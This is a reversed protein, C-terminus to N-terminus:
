REGKRRTDKRPEISTETIEQEERRKQIGLIEGIAGKPKPIPCEHARKRMALQEEEIENGAGSTETGM